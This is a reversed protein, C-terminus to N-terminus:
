GFPDEGSLDPLAFVPPALEPIDALLSDEGDEEDKPPASTEDLNNLLYEDEAHQRSTLTQNRKQGATLFFLTMAAAGSIDRTSMPGDDALMTEEKLQRASGEAPSSGSVRASPKLPQSAYAATVASVTVVQTM